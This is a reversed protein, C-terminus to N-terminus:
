IRARTGAVPGDVIEPENALNVFFRQKSLFRDRMQRPEPWGSSVDLNLSSDILATRGIAKFKFQNYPARFPAYQTDAYRFCGVVAYRTPTDTSDEM